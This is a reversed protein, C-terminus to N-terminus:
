TDIDFNNNFDDGSYALVGGSSTDLSVDKRNLWRAKVPRQDQLAISGEEGRVIEDSSYRTVTASPDDQINDDYYRFSEGLIMGQNVLKQFPEKTHVLGLDFFVKHWFRAYLLHLNVHEAGGIYFDPVGWYEAIKPDIVAETNKPDCYRLYYWCSGAWQPMTNTERTGSVWNDGEPKESSRPISEGTKINLWRELWETVGALPSEGTGIPEYSEVDPLELPLQSTPTPLAYHVEGDTEFTVPEESLFKRFPNTEDTTAKEYNEKSSDKLDIGSIEAGLAGSLLKVEM